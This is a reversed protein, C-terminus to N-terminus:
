GFIREALQKKLENQQDSNLSSIFPDFAKVELAFWRARKENNRHKTSQQASYAAGWLLVGSISATLLLLQWSFGDPGRGGLEAAADIGSVKASDQILEEVGAAVSVDLSGDIGSAREPSNFYSFLLWIVTFIIFGLSFLRWRNAQEAEDDASKIYAAGVSDGATLEYLELIAQHKANSDEIIEGIKIDLNEGRREIKDSLENLFENAAREKDATFSDRWKSFDQSRAEQATSFQNQWEASLNKLEVEKDEIEKSVEKIKNEQAESLSSLKAIKENLENKKDVLSKMASDAVVELNELGTNVLDEDSGCISALLSIQTITNAVQDNISVLRSENGDSLYSDVQNTINQHRLNANLSDLQNFPVLEPDIKELVSSIRGVVKKLRRKEQFDGGESPSAEALTLSDLWSLTEHIPHNELKEKWRNM